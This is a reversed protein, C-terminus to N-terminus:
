QINQLYTVDEAFVSEFNNLGLEKLKDDNNVYASKFDGVAVVKTKNGENPVPIYYVFYKSGIFPGELVEFAVGLPYFLTAKMEFGILQGEIEQLWTNIFTTESLQETKVDKANPHIKSADISHAKVLKWVRDIPANLFAENDQIFVM